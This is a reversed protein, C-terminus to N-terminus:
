SSEEAEEELAEGSQEIDQGLGEMTNCGALGLGFGALMMIALLQKM